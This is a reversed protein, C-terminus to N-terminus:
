YHFIPFTREKFDVKLIQQTALVTKICGQFNISVKSCLVFRKENVFLYLSLSQRKIGEGVEGIHHLIERRLIL